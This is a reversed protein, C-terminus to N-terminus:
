AVQIKKKTEEVGKGRRPIEIRLLGADMSAKIDEDKSGRTVTFERAFIGYKREALLFSAKDSQYEAPKRVTAKVSLSTETLNIDVDGKGVGPLEIYCIQREEMEIIDTVPARQGREHERHPDFAHFFAELPHSVISM